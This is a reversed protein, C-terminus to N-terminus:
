GEVHRPGAAVRVDHVGQQLTACVGGVAIVPPPCRHVKRRAPAVALHDVNEHAVPLAHDDWVVVPTGRDVQGRQVVVHVDHPFQAGGAAGGVVIRPYPTERAGAHRRPERSRAIIRREVQRTIPAVDLGDPHKQPRGVRDVRRGNGHRSRSAARAAVPLGHRAKEAVGQTRPAGPDVAQARCRETGRHNRHQERTPPASNRPVHRQGV